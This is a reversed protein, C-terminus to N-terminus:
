ENQEAVACRNNKCEAGKKIADFHWCYMNNKNEYLHRQRGAQTTRVKLFAIFGIDLSILTSLFHFYDM